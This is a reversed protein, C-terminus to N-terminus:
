HCLPLVYQWVPQHHQSIKIFTVSKDPIVLKIDVHDDECTMKGDFSQYFDDLQLALANQIPAQRPLFPKGIAAKRTRIDESFRMLEKESREGTKSAKPPM